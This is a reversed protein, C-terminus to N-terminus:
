LMGDGRLDGLLKVIDGLLTSTQRLMVDGGRQLSISACDFSFMRVWSIVLRLVLIGACVGTTFWSRQPGHTSYKLFSTVTSHWHRTTSTRISPSLMVVHWFFFCWLYSSPRYCVSTTLCVCEEFTTSATQFRQFTKSDDGGSDHTPLFRGCHSNANIAVRSYYYVAFVRYSSIVHCRSSSCRAYIHEKNGHTHPTELSARAIKM